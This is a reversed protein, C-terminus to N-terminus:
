TVEAAMRRANDLEGRADLREVAHLYQKALAAYGAADGDARTVMILCKLPWLGFGPASFVPQNVWEAVVGRAEALDDASGRDLLVKILAEAVYGVVTWSYLAAHQAFNARIEEIVDEGRRARALALEAEIAGLISAMTRHRLIRARAQELIDTAEEVAPASRRLLATAHFWQSLTLGFPDGFSECRRVIDATESVIEDAPVLGTPVLLLGATLSQAQLVPNLERAHEIAIRLDHRGRQPYGRLLSIAGRTCTAQVVGAIAPDTSLQHIRQATRLAADFDGNVYQVILVNRFLELETTGDCDISDIMGLLETALEAADAVRLQTTVLSVLQGSIALAVSLLDGSRTALERFERYAEDTDYEDAVYFATTMLMTRPALRMAAVDDFDDPLGDAIKRAREWSARTAVIDRFRLWEAARMHWSYALAPEGAAELHTAILAANEDAANPDRTEIAAALRKHADARTATLQSEYAVTRVLPHRFTYRQRPVFQTQDILEASVLEALDATKLDPQLTQLADLDFQSGIVAAANLISKAQAPLRDVRAALVAQVTAPVTIQAVDGDLRYDGRSGTLLGRGALDRVIEEVFFPNGAAPTAIREALGALTPHPGIIQSVLGATTEATLPQLTIVADSQERL